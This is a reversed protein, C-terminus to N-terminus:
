AARGNKKLWRAREQEDRIRNWEDDSLDDRLDVSPAGGRGGVTDVPEPAESLKPKPAATMAMKTMEAIRKAPTLEMIRHYENPNKGLEYLVKSPDDTALIGVMTEPDFGGLLRINEVSKEFEDKYVEKGKVEAAACAENFKEQNRLQEAAAKVDSEDFKPAATIVPREIPQEPDARRETAKAALEELDKIRQNLEAEKRDKEKLQAHKKALEKDRWDKEVKPQDDGKAKAEADATEKAKAEDAVRAAEKAAEAAAEVAVIPAEESGGTQVVEIEDTMSEGASTRGPGNSILALDM